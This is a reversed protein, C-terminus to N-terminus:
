PRPESEPGAAREARLKALTYPLLGGAECIALIEPPLRPFTFTEGGISIEGAEADLLIEDGEEYADIAAPCEVLLLGQNIAARYFIRAFSRAVVARIGVAKLGLVPQERSSGCGFNKGAVIVDGPQVQFRFEPDLDELAHEGMEAPDSVTYTYKGPFIVDTNVDDGYKWVKGKITM